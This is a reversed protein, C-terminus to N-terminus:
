CIDYFNFDANCETFNFFDFMIKLILILMVDNFNFFDLM